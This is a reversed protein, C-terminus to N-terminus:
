LSFQKQASQIWEFDCFLDRDSKIRESNCLLPNTQPYYSQALDHIGDTKASIPSGPRVNWFISIQVEQCREEIHAPYEIQVFDGGFQAIKTVCKLDLYHLFHSFKGHTRVM